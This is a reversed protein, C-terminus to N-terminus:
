KKFCVYGTMLVLLVLLVLAINMKGSLDVMTFNQVDNNTFHEVNGNKIKTGEEIYGPM